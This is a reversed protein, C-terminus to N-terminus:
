LCVGPEHRQLLGTSNLRSDDETSWPLREFYLVNGVRSTAGLNREFSSISGPATITAAVRLRDTTGWIVSPVLRNGLPNEHLASSVLYDMSLLSTVTPVPNAGGSCHESYYLDLANLMSEINTKLEESKNRDYLRKGSSIGATIVLSAILMAAVVEYLLFGKHRKKM